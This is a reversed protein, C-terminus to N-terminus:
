GGMGAGDEIRYLHTKTRLILADGDAVPSAMCGADLTNTALKKFQRSPEVVTTEGEQNCFYLRGNAFIPSAAFAGGLRKQWVTDSTAAEICTAVGDDSALYILGDVYIPSATKPV